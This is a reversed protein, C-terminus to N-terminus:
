IEWVYIENKSSYETLTISTQIFHKTDNTYSQNKVLLHITMSM